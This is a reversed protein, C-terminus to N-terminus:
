LEQRGAAGADIGHWHAVSPEGVTWCLYVEHGDRLAPFDVLGRDLDRVIVDLGALQRARLFASVTDAAVDRGAFGSGDSQAARELAATAVPEALRGAARRMEEVQAAVWGRLANAEDVSYHRKHRVPWDYWGNLPRNEGTPIPGDAARM